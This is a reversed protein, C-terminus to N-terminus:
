AGPEVEKSDPFEIGAHARAFDVVAAFTPAECRTDVELRLIIHVGIITGGIGGGYTSLGGVLDKNILSMGMTRPVVQVIEWGRLGLERLVDIDFAPSVDQDDIRSDVPIYVTEYLFVRNGNTVRKCLLDARDNAVQWAREEDRRQREAVEAAHVDRQERERRVQEAKCEKCLTGFFGAPKGCETCKAM